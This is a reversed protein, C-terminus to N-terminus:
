PLPRNVVSFIATNTAAPDFTITAQAGSDVHLVPVGAAQLEAHRGDLIARRLTLAADLSFPGPALYYTGAAFKPDPMSPDWLVNVFKSRDQSIRFTYVREADVDIMTVHRDLRAPTGSDRLGPMESVLLIEASADGEPLAVLIEGLDLDVDLSDASLEVFRVENSHPLGFVLLSASGRVANVNFNGGAEGTFGLSSQRLVGCVALPVPAGTATDRLTGSVEVAPLVEYEISIDEDDSAVLYARWDPFAYNQRLSNYTETYLDRQEDSAGRAWSGDCIRVLIRDDQSPSAELTLTVTGAPGTPGENGGNRSIVQVVVNSVTDGGPELVVVSVRIARRDKALVSQPEAGAVGAASLAVLMACYLFTSLNTM